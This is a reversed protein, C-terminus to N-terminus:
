FRTVLLFNWYVHIIIILQIKFQQKNRWLHQTNRKRSQKSRKKKNNKPPLTVGDNQLLSIVVPNINKNCLSKMSDYHYFQSVENELIEQFTKNEIKQLYTCYYICPIGEDQWKGCSCFRGVTDLVNGVQEDELFDGKRKCKYIGSSEDIIIITSNVSEVLNTEIAEHCWKIYGSSKKCSEKICSYCEIIVDLVANITSLWEYNQSAEVVANTM